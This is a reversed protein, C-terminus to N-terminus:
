NNNFVIDFIEKMRVDFTHQEKIKGYGNAAIQQREKDHSLYYACKQLLDEESTYLVMDEDPTFHRYFDEQYNSLLFGGAGMIDLCRLPIGTRISRLSINLNVSSNHFVYPMADYYDVGGMNHILPLEPTANHTYLRTNFNSSVSNLLKVREISAIKRAIFYHAYIYEATEVGDKNPEVPVSKQMDETIESTLLDQVFYEGYVRMQAQMLADLYGKTYPSLSTMRDFLNHKENYMSGIFSIDCSFEKKMNKLHQTGQVSELFMKDLREVNVALPAYYVTNIGANKLESYMKYDFLFVYNCPNIITYSYLSILPSDYVLAIYPLNYKKCNNSVIPNYNFSFVCDYQTSEVNQSFTLDFDPNNRDHISDTSIIHYSHGSKAFTECIDDIGLNKWEYILINM